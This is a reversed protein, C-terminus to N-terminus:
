AHNGQKVRAPVDRYDAGNETPAHRLGTLASTQPVLPRPNLDRRGSWFVESSAARECDDDSMRKWFISRFLSLTSLGACYTGFFDRVANWLRERDGIEDFVQESGTSRLGDDDLRDPCRFTLRTYLRKGGLLLLGSSSSARGCIASWPLAGLGDGNRRTISRTVRCTECNARRDFRHHLNLNSLACARLGLLAPSRRIGKRYSGASGPTPRKRPQRQRRRRALQM